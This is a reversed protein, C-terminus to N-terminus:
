EEGLWEERSIGAQRLLRQLFGAGIDAHHPNPIIVTLNGRRMQPHRGGAYPGEFGLARMRKVFDQWSVPSLKGM